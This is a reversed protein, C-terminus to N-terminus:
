LRRATMLCPLLRVACRRPSGKNRAAPLWGALRAFALAGGQGLERLMDARALGDGVFGEWLLAIAGEYGHQAVLAEIPHGRVWIKGRKGDAHSIVTRAAVVGELGESMRAKAREPAPRHIRAIGARRRWRAGFNRSSGPPCGRSGYTFREDEP